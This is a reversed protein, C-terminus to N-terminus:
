LVWAHTHECQTYVHALSISRSSSRSRGTCPVIAPVCPHVGHLQSLSRDVHFFVSTHTRGITCDCTDSTTHTRILTYLLSHIFPPLCRELHTVPHMQTQTMHKCWSERRNRGESSKNELPLCPLWSQFSLPSWWYSFLSSEGGWQAKPPLAPLLPQSLLSPPSTMLPNHQHGQHPM